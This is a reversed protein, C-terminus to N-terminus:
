RSCWGRRTYKLRAWLTGLTGLTDLTGLTGLAGLDKFAIGGAGSLEGLAGSWGLVEGECLLGSELPRGDKMLGRAGIRARCGDVVEGTRGERVSGAFTLQGCALVGWQNAGVALAVAPLM